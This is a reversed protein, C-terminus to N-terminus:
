RSAAKHQERHTQISLADHPDSIYEHGGVMVGSLSEFGPCTRAREGARGWGTWTLGDGAAVGGGFLDAGCRRLFPLGYVGPIQPRACCPPPPPPSEIAEKAGNCKRMKRPRGVAGKIPGLPVAGLCSLRGRAPPNCGCWFRARRFKVSRTAAVLPMIVHLHQAMSNEWITKGHWCGIMQARPRGSPLDLGIAALYRSMRVGSKKKKQCRRTQVQPPRTQRPIPQKTERSWMSRM